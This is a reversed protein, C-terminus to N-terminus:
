HARCRPRGELFDVWLNRLNAYILFSVRVQRQRTRREKLSLISTLACQYFYDAAIQTIQPYLKPIFMGESDIMENTQRMTVQPM